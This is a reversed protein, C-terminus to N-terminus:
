DDYKESCAYFRCVAAVREGEAPCLDRESWACFVFYYLMEPSYVEQVPYPSFNMAIKLALIHETLKGM